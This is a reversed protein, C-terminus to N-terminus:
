PRAEGHSFRPDLLSLRRAAGASARPSIWEIPELGAHEYSQEASSVTLRLERPELLLQRVDDQSRARLKGLLTLRLRIARHEVRLDLLAYHGEPLVVGGPAPSAAPPAAARILDASGATLGRAPTVM